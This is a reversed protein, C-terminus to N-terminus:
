YWPITAAVFLGSFVYFCPAIIAGVYSLPPFFVIQHISSGARDKFLILFM